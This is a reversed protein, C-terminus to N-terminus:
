RAGTPRTARENTANRIHRDELYKTARMEAIVANECPDCYRAGKRSHPKGCRPCQKRPQTFKM